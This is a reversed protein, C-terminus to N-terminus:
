NVTLSVDDIYWSTYYQWQGTENTTTGRLTLILQQGTRGQLLSTVDFSEFQYGNTASACSSLVQGGSVVTGDISALTAYLHDVCLPNSMIVPFYTQTSVWFSLMAKHITAPITITQSIRDDCDPYACMLALQSGAHPLGRNGIIAYYGGSYYQTWGTAGSEFGGNTILQTSTPTPNPCNGGGGFQVGSQVDRAINWAIPSGIGMTMSYCATGPYEGAYPTGSFDIDNNGSPFLANFPQYIQSNSFLTYLTPNVWGLAAVGNAALYTNIDTLVGAWLPAAASTGGVEIWPNSPGACSATSSCYVSYGNNPDADASVDPVEREGTSYSNTVGAGVQWTPMTFVSSIGGGTANGNHNWINEAVYSGSSLSLSTGGVGLVYPDSAPSDVNPSASRTGYAHLCDDSGYDGAAAAITQGQSAAQAFIQDLSDLMTTGSAPECLGWSTTTVADVNDVVIQNYTDLLGQGSNPGTFVDLTANPALGAADEVDLDAEISGGSDCSSGAAACTPTGGDVSINNVGSSPLGYYSRFAALDSPFYAALEFVALRQGSGNGGANILNTVDYASRLESPTYGGGPGTAPMTAKSAGSASSQASMQGELLPQAVAVDDLGAINLVYGVLTDPIQPARDPAYVTRKGLQYQLISVGFVREAQAVSGKASILTRNASVGTVKLGSSSLFQRVAAVAQASPAFRSIFEKTSLYQHYQPSKANQQNAILAALGNPDSLQLSVVLNLQRGGSEVGTRKAKQLIRPLSGNLPISHHTHSHLPPPGNQARLISASSSGLAPLAISVAAVAALTLAQLARRNTLASTWNWLKPV